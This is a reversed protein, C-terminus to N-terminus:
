HSYSRFEDTYITSLPKIQKMIIPLLTADEENSITKAFARTMNNKFEVITIADTRNHPSRGRHSKCRYN